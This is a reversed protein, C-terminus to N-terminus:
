SASNAGLHSLKKDLEEFLITNGDQKYSSLNKEFKPLDYFFAKLNDASLENFHRGYGLKDIYAANMWQEFQNHIPFSYIPKKLYVAESIFSFGGNAIVAKAKSLDAIFGAESFPKFTVNGETYDQNMGYVFFKQEPLQQLIEKVTKLSSSTQYMLIHDGKSPKVEQIASRIIPPVISTNKKKIQADFFSSIFYHDCAPVKAMVINKALRYNNKEEKSIEIDLICRDMVQMNDISVIPLKHTKAFFFSFSEFDSIVVDPSFSKEILLKKATNHILNKPAAKLNSLFTATKSVEANKYAFHFGKIEIVRDPFMKDLFTFARGSSVAIVNHGSKLLHDIVVKSRTAHGMGEGPIGYLINM